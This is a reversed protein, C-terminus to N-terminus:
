FNHFITLNDNGGPYVHLPGTFMSHDRKAILDLQNVINHQNEDDDELDSEDVSLEIQSEEFQFNTYEIKPTKQHSFEREEKIELDKKQLNENGFNAFDENKIDLFGFSDKPPNMEKFPFKRIMSNGYLDQNNKEEIIIKQMLNSENPKTEDVKTIYNPDQPSNFSQQKIKNENLFEKIQQDLDVESLPKETSEIEYPMLDNRGGSFNKLFYLLTSQDERPNTYKLFEIELKRKNTENRYLNDIQELIEKYEEQVSALSKKIQKQLNLNKNKIDRLTM